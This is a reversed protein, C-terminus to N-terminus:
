KLEERAVVDHFFKQRKAKGKKIWEKALANGTEDFDVEYNKLFDVVEKMRHGNFSLEPRNIYLQSSTVAMAVEVGNEAKDFKKNIDNLLKTRSLRTAGSLEALPACGHDATFVTLFDGNTAKSIKEFIAEAARDTTELVEKCEDSEYGFLHGCYDTGKMNLWVFDTEDDAGIKLEDIADLTLDREFEAMAPSSRAIKISIEKKQESFLPQGFWSGGHRALLKEAYTQVKKGNAAQPLEYNEPDTTYSGANAGEENFFLVSTKQAGKFMAGHGGMSISARGASAMAFIKAKGGRAKSWVDSLTPAFFFGSYGERVNEGSFPVAFAPITQWTGPHFFNNSTVGHDKPYAGTGIGAHGVSTEVDVHGVQADPFMAGSNLLKSYFPHSDPHARLYQWGVQDQVFVLIARPRHAVGKTKATKGNGVLAEELVRGAARSPPAIGLIRALTPVIDQQVAIGKYIGPKVYANQPDFFALPIQVDYDWAYGHMSMAHPPLERTKGGETIHSKLLSAPQLDREELLINGNQTRLFIDGSFDSVSRQFIEKLPLLKAGKAASAPGMKPESLGLSMLATVVLVGLACIKRPGLKPM